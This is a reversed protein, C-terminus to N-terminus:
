APLILRFVPLALAKVILLGSAGHRRCASM